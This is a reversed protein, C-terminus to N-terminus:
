SPLILKCLGSSLSLKTDYVAWRAGATEERIVFDAYGLFGRRYFAGQYIVDAGGRLVRWTEEAAAMIAGIGETPRAMTFVGSGADSDYEGYREILGALVRAEHAEGLSAARQGVADAPVETRECRGLKEDLRRLWGFECEVAATLDSASCVVLGDVVFVGCVEGRGGAPRTLSRAAMGARYGMTTIVAAHVDGRGVATV